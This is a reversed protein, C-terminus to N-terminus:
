HGKPLLVTVREVTVSSPGNAAGNQIVVTPKNELNVGTLLIDRSPVNRPLMVRSLFTKKDDSLVGMRVDGIVDKVTVSVVAKVAAEHPLTLLAAYAWPQIPSKVTLPWSLHEGNDETLQLGRAGVDVERRYYARDLEVDGISIYLRPGSRDISWSAVPRLYLHEEAIEFDAAPVPNSSSLLVIRDGPEIPVQAAAGLRFKPFDDSLLSYSYLYTANIAREIDSIPSRNSYWFRASANTNYRSIYNSADFVELTEKKFRANPPFMMMDDPHTVGFGAASGPSVSAFFLVLAIFGSKAPWRMCAVLLITGLAVWCVEAFTGIFLTPYPIVIGFDALTMPTLAIIPIALVFPTLHKRPLKREAVALIGGIVLFDFPLLANVKDRLMLVVFHELQLLVFIGSVCICLLSVIVLRATLPETQRQNAKAFAKGYTAVIWIAAVAVLSPVILWQANGIWQNFPLYWHPRNGAVEPLANIQSAFYLFPGGVLANAIALLLGAAFAATIFLIGVSKWSRRHTISNLLLFAGIEFPIFLIFLVYLSVIFTTAVGWLIAAVQWRAGVAAGSLAAASILLCASYAGDVYDGGIGSLFFPDVALLLCASLAAVRSDFLTVLAFYLASFALYFVLFHLVYLATEPPFLSHIIWGLLNWPVRAAYYTYPYRELLEHLHLQFGVYVWNDIGTPKSFIWTNNLGLLTLPLLLIAGLYPADPALVRVFRSSRLNIM